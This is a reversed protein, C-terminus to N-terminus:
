TMHPVKLTVLTLESTGTATTDAEQTADGTPAASEADGAGGCGIWVSTFGVVLLMAAIRKM